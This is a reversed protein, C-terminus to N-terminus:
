GGLERKFAGALPPLLSGNELIPSTDNSIVMKTEVEAAGDVIEVFDERSIIDKAVLAHMLSEALLLAARGHADNVPVADPEVQDAANATANM